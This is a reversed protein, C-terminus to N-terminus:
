FIQFDSLIFGLRGMFLIIIFKFPHLFQLPSLSILIDM